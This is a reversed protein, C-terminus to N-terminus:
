FTGVMQMPPRARGAGRRTQKGPDPGCYGDRKTAARSCRHEGTLDSYIANRNKGRGAARTFSPAGRGGPILCRCGDFTLNFQRLRGVGKRLDGKFWTSVRILRRTYDGQGVGDVALTDAVTKLVELALAPPWSEPLQRRPCWMWVGSGTRWNSSQWPAAM